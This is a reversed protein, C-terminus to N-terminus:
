SNMTSIPLLSVSMTVMSIWIKRGTLSGLHWVVDLPNIFVDGQQGSGSSGSIEIRSGGHGVRGFGKRVQAVVGRM